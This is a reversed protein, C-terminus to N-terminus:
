VELKYFIHRGLRLKPMQGKAWHPLDPLTTAYYHNCGQTLDPWQSSAVGSAVYQCTRFIGDTIEAQMLVKRNPNGENWCSFQFPKQCVERITNGYWSNAKVRNMVVNGVAVLAVLGGELRHYAGRAEGYLTRALIEIDENKM